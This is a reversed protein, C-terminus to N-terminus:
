QLFVSTHRDLDWAKRYSEEAYNRIRPITGLRQALRLLVLCFHEGLLASDAPFDIRVGSLVGPSAYRRERATVTRGLLDNFWAEPMGKAPAVGPLLTDPSTTADDFWVAISTWTEVAYTM